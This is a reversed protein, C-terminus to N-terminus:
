AAASARKIIVDTNGKGLPPTIQPYVTPIKECFRASKAPKAVGVHSDQIIAQETLGPTVCLM